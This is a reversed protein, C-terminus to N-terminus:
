RKLRKRPRAPSISIYSYSRGDNVVRGTLFFHKGERLNRAIMQQVSPHLKKGGIDLALGKPILVEVNGLRLFVPGLRLRGLLVSGGKLHVSFRM